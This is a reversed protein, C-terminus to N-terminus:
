EAEDGGFLIEDWSPVTARKSRSAKPISFGDQSAEAAPDSIKRFQSGGNWGKGANPVTRLPTDTMADVMAQMRGQSAHPNMAHAADGILVAGDAFTVGCDVMLWKGAHGYLTVNMGIEGSGGLACFLLENNRPTM